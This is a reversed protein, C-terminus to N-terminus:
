YISYSIMDMISAGRVVVLVLMRMSGMVWAGVDAIRMEMVGAGADSGVVEWSGAM